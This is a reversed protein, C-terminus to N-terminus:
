PGLEDLLQLRQDARDLLVRPAVPLLEEGGVGVAHRAGLAAPALALVEGEGRQPGLPHELHLVVVHLPPAEAVGGVELPPSGVAVRLRAAVLLELLGDAVVQTPNQTDVSSAAIASVALPFYSTTSSTSCARVGCSAVWTRERCSPM